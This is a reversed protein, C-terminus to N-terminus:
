GSAWTVILQKSPSVRINLTQSGGSAFDTTVEKMIAPQKGLTVYVRIAAQGPPVEVSKEFDGSAPRVRRFFGGPASFSFDQNVKQVDNVYVLLTGKSVESHFNVVLNASAHSESEAGTESAPDIEAGPTPTAGPRPAQAIIEALRQEATSEERAKALIEAAEEHDNRLAMVAMASQVADVYRREGLAKRAASLETGVETEEGTLRELDRKYEEAKIRMIRPEALDPALREAEGYVRAAEDFEGSRMLEHGQRVLDVVRPDSVSVSPREAVDDPRTWALWLLLMAGVLVVLTLLGGVALLRRRPRPTPPPISLSAATDIVPTGTGTGSLPLPTGLPPTSTRSGVSSEPLPTAGGTAQSGSTGTGDAPLPPLPMLMPPPAAAPKRGFWRSWVSPRAAAAGQWGPAGGPPPLPPVSPLVVTASLSQTENLDDPRVDNAAARRLDDAMERARQYRRNPDKELARTLVREIPPPLNKIYDRPPTFHDYVIRHSVVTLNEGQFPKHRTLMEYLVVGLAFLDARHDVERGQVQEPAMYNPTGLLQGEQTLNSTNLRAIGFDTIKVRHDDTIIINAPKVDRHIVGHSHAYDLADAIQGVIEAVRSLPMPQDSQLVHKLNTGRVYEMAIFSLGDGAEEAVDHITVINPHSLIGASQAERIFRARFQEMEHDRLSYGIRFTKLAVLRGILPDRALYVIGMAGKGLEDLIEYRGLKTPTLPLM